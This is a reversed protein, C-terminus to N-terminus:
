DITKLLLLPSKRDRLSKLYKTESYPTRTKWCRFLIRIWKFALSRVASQHSNGKQRQQAYYLGAWYSSHVTKATWEILSQRLFKSCQWRWHVWKKQGSRVTVPAVGTYMQVQSANDFRDRNEGFAVLLRPAMCPGASPLSEFLEADPLEHFLKDIETDFMRIARVTTIIQAAVSKALLQHSDIIATDETIYQAQNIIEIRKEILPVSSGGAALFFKRITDSRARKLKQL